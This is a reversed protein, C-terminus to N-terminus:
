VYKNLATSCKRFITGPKLRLSSHFKKLKAQQFKECPAFIDLLYIENQSFLFLSHYEKFKKWVFFDSFVHFDKKTLSHVVWM